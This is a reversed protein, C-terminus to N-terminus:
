PDWPSQARRGTLPEGGHETVLIPDELRVGVGVQLGAQEAQDTTVYIGQHLTLMTSLSSLPLFPWLADCRVPENTVVEGLRLRERNAGNLYPHEHVELGLGHGLRHTYFPGFGAQAIVERSAADADSCTENAHMRSFGAAQAALVTHWVDMMEDSVGSSGSAGSPLITRTVDSGYGHLKSGIDVLVFEGEELTKGHKGGHPFAAQDGFLVITWFGEGVGAQAFLAHATTTVAEQTVGIRLCGVLSRVVELTFANIGRLIAIEAESKVSRLSQVVESTPLVEVGAQQLGAAIMFRAHEDLMIRDYGSERALVEYPSEEERWAMVKKQDYVMDLGAIRGAEFEPVLYSFQGERDLLVLFPRESLDFSSSVNAYYETSASPEAVFADVGAEALARALTSQRSLFESRPIPAVSLLSVHDKLTKWACVDLPEDAAAAAASSSSSPRRQPFGYILLWAVLGSVFLSLVLKATNQFRRTLNLSETPTSREALLPQKEAQLQAMVLHVARKLL